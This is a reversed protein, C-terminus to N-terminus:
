LFTRTAELAERAVAEPDRTWTQENPAEYSLYGDYGKERLLDFFRRFPVIGRGPPLRNLLMTPELPGAPVDSFQVYFIEEPRVDAVAAMGDGSREIHYSDLLLGVSPHGATALLERGRELNNFQQAVLYPEIAFRVGHDAALDGVERVSAAARRLDGREFDVPSMVTPAGLAAAWRCANAVVALLERRQDGAAFMWGFRAGVASVALGSERVLSVIDDPERGAEAARAFDVQRLEVADWGTERAIRLVDALPTSDLTWTHLALRNM